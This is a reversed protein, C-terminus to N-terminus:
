WIGTRLLLSEAAAQEARRRNPGEGQAEGLGPAEVQIVFRVPSEGEEQGIIRYFPVLGTRRQTADQLASKPDKGGRAHEADPLSPWFRRVFERAAELGGDLYLAALVAECAGAMIASGRLSARSIEPVLVLYRDLGAREAAQACAERSVIRKFLSAMVAFDTKGEGAYSDEAVILSLVRDGLFELWENDHGREARRSAHVLARELLAKDRFRWGLVEQLAELSRAEQPGKLPRREAM